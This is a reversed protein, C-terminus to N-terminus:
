LFVFLLILLASQLYNSKCDFDEISADIDYKDYLDEAEDILDDLNDFENKTVPQCGKETRDNIEIEVYCCKYAQEEIEDASFQRSHCDSESNPFVADGEDDDSTECKLEVLNFLCLLILLFIALKLSKM